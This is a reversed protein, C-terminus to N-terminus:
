MYLDTVSHYMSTLCAVFMRFYNITKGVSNDITNKVSCSEYSTNHSKYNVSTDLRGNNLITTGLVEMPPMPSRSCISPASSDGVHLQWCDWEGLSIKEKFPEVLRRGEYIGESHRHSSFQYKYEQVYIQTALNSVKPRTSTRSIVPIGFGSRRRWSRM